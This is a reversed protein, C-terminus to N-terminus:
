CSFSIVLLTSWTFVDVRKNKDSKEAPNSVSIEGGNAMQHIPNKARTGSSMAMCPVAGLIARRQPNVEAVIDINMPSYQTIFEIVM